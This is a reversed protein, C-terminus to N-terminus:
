SGVASAARSWGFREPCLVGAPDLKRQIEQMLRVSERWTGFVSLDQKWSADCNWIVLSGGSREAMARLPNVLEAAQAATTCTDPLHGIIIGNGAHAQLSIQEENAHRCFEVTRTPPVSARFTLPDDSSAQYETLASWMRDAAEDRVFHTQGAAISAMEARVEDSQWEVERLSGELGICLLFEDTPIEEHLDHRMQWVARPNILDLIVPRAASLNLAELVRDLTEVSPSSVVVFARTALRPRLKLTVETILGLTGLSGILLKCLDYGAVNKVVRGGASYTRGRGDIATIGIVADRLTGYGYRSPGSTNTAIAGGLTARHTQPIDIGLRQNEAALVEDLQELRIGAEITITLDRAPYDLVKNLGTMDVNVPPSPPLEGYHLATRGGVPQLLLREGDFNETVLRSLERASAPKWETPAM